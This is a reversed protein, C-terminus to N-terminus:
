YHNSKAETFNPNSQTAYYECGVAALPEWIGLLELLVSSVCVCVCVYVCMCVCCTCFLYM